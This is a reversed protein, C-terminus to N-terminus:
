DIFSRSTGTRELLEQVHAQPHGSRLATSGRFTLIVRSNGDDASSSLPMALGATNWSAIVDIVLRLVAAEPGRQPLGALVRRYKGPLGHRRAFLETLDMLLISPLPQDHVGAFARVFLDASLEWRDGGLLAGVLDASTHTGDGQRASEPGSRKM